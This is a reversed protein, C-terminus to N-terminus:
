YRSPRFIWCIQLNIMIFDIHIEVYCSSLNINLGLSFRKLVNIIIKFGYLDWKDWDKLKTLPFFKFIKQYFNGLIM